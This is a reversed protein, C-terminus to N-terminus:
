SQLFPLCESRETQWVSKICSEVFETGVGTPLEVPSAEFMRVGFVGLLPEQTSVHRVIEETVILFEVTTNKRNVILRLNGTFVGVVHRQAGM